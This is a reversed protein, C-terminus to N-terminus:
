FLSIRRSSYLFFTHLRLVLSLCQTHYPRCLCFQASHLAHAYLYMCYAHTQSLSLSLLPRVLSFTGYEARLLHTLLGPLSTQDGWSWRASNLLSSAPLYLYPLLGGSFWLGLAALGRLSLEQCVPPSM